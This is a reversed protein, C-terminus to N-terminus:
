TRQQPAESRDRECAGLQKWNAQANVGLWPNDLWREHLAATCDTNKVARGLGNRLEGVRDYFKGKREEKVNSSKV